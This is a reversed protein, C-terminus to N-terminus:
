KTIPNISLGRVWDRQENTLAKFLEVKNKAEVALLINSAEIKDDSEFVIRIASVATNVASMDAKPLTQAAYKAAPPPPPTYAPANSEFKAGGHGDDDEQTIMFLAALSYRRGYTLMSGSCQSGNNPIPKAPAIPVSGSIWQGSENHLILTTVIIGPFSPNNVADQIISLDYKECLDKISEIIKTLDAYKYTGAKDSKIVANAESQVHRIANGVLNIKESHLM